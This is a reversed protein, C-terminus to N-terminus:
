FGNTLNCQRINDTSIGSEIYSRILKWGDISDKQSTQFFLNANQTSKGQIVLTASLLVMTKDDRLTIISIVNLDWQAKNDKVFNFGQEWGNISEEYGFDVIIEDTIERAKYDKSILDKLESLSSNRWIDLYTDLFQRFSTEM